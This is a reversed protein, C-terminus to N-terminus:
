QADTGASQQQEVCQLATAPAAIAPSELKITAPRWPACPPSGLGLALRQIAGTRRTQPRQPAIPPSKAANQRRFDTNSTKSPNSTRQRKEFAPTETTELINYELLMATIQVSREQFRACCFAILSVAMARCRRAVSARWSSSGTGSTFSISLLLAQRARLLVAHQPPPPPPAAFTISLSLSIPIGRAKWRRM